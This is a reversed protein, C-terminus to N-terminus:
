AVSDRAPAPTALAAALYAKEDRAAMRAFGRAALAQRADHDAVLEACAQALGDYPVLRVADVLDADIETGPRHEAVVAKSNALAYSVRVVEFISTDYYHLNLVVKARAMLADRDTGYAGFVAHVNLGMARLRSLVQARRENISGYFLVDIDEVPAPRVRTLEPMYGIPVRQVNGSVGMAALTAINRPSYDWVRCTRLFELYTPSCWASTPSIQELNYIITGRPVNPLDAPGLLHAGFLVPQPGPAEIRNVAHSARYGLAVLGYRVTEIVEAL